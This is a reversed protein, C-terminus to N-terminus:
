PAYFRVACGLLQCSHGQTVSLVSQADKGSQKGGGERSFVCFHLQLSEQGCLVLKPCPKVSHNFWSHARGQQFPANRSGKLEIVRRGQEMGRGGVAWVEALSKTHM